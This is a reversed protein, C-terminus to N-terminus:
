SAVMVQIRNRGDNTAVAAMATPDAPQRISLGAKTSEAPPVADPVDPEVLPSVVEVDVDPVLWPLAEAVPVDVVPM